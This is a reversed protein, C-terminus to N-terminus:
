LTVVPVIYSKIEYATAKDFKSFDINSVFSPRKRKKFQSPTPTVTYEFRKDHVSDLTTEMGTVQSYIDMIRAVKTYPWTRDTPNKYRIILRKISKSKSAAEEIIDTSAEGTVDGVCSTETHVILETKPDTPNTWVVEAVYPTFGGVQSESFEIAINENTM